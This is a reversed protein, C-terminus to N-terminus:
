RRLLALRATLSSDGPSRRLGASYASDALDRAGLSEHAVGLFLAAVAGTESRLLPTAARVVAAAGSARGVADLYLAVFGPEGRADADRMLPELYREADAYRGGAYLVQGLEFRIQRDTPAMALARELMATATPVDGRARADMGLLKYSMHEDPAVDKLRTWLSRHSTWVAAYRTTEIANRTVILGLVILAITRSRRPIVDLAWAIALAGGVSAGFLTRDALIQGTATLLNSAPLYTFAIWSLAVLPRADGRRAVVVAAAALGAFVALSALALVARADPFLSPGYYPALCSPWVLMSAIRPWLSLMAGIRDLTGLTDIGRAAISTAAVPAGLVVLRSLLVASVFLAAAVWARARDHAFTFPPTRVQGRSRWGWATLAALPLALLGSEKALLACAALVGVQFARGRTPQARLVAVLAVTCLIVLLESTNAVSAVAEVHLPHTAFWAAGAATAVAGTARGLMWWVAVTVVAILVLAYVHMWFASGGSANWVTSLAAIHLPRYLGLANVGETPWYPEGWVRALASWGRITLNDRIVTTDDYIFAARLTPLLPVVALLGLGAAAVRQWRTM